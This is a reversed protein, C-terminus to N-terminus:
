GDKFFRWPVGAASDPTASLNARDAAELMVKGELNGTIEHCEPDHAVFMAVPAVDMLKELEEARRRLQEGLHKTENTDMTTNILRPLITSTVGYGQPRNAGPLGKPSM